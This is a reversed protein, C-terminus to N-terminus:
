RAGRLLMRSIIMRQIESTGGGIEGLKSDRFVREVRNERTYGYGGFIQVAESAAKSAVESSFLKAIAAEMEAPRGQDKLWAARYIMMRSTDMAIKIDALKHQIAQFNAIPQGFQKREKAYAVCDELNAEMLGIHPAVMVSREWELSEKAVAIFGHGLEGLLNKEPVECDEFFLESTPSTRCGMKDLHKGVKFGPFDKEVIFTSIGGKPGKEKDTVAVVICIDAIPANTIFIKSGNLIYKDGVKRASTQVSAADSGADPETLGFCSIIEGAALPVLYKQKQEETGLKWLGIGGIITNAGWSLCIGWDAGGAAFGEMAVTTTLAGADSGGYEEPFPLGLLGFQGMKKWGEWFFTSERDYEELYPKIEKTAFEKCQQKFAIQEESLDFDM